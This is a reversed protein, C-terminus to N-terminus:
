PKELRYFETGSGSISITVTNSSGVVVVPASNSTWSGNLSAAQQVGFGTASTPWSLVISGASPPSVTLSVGPPGSQVPQFVFDSINQVSVSGGDGGGFGVYGLNAGLIPVVPGLNYNTSYTDSTSLDEMNVTLIGSAWNLNFQIPDGSELSINGTPGYLPGGTAFTIGNTEAAIGVFSYLDMELALSNTIDNFGLGGGGAGVSNTAAGCDQIIFTTGDAAPISFTHVTYVFSANFSGVYQAIPYFANASESGGGDTLELTDNTFFPVPSAAVSSDIVWGAGNTGLSNFTIPAVSALGTLSAVSSLVPVGASLANTLSVQILHVGSAANFTFSSSTAGSVPTGDMTWQFDIPLSGATTVTYTVSTGIVVEANTPMIDNQLAAAADNVTLPVSATLSGFANGAIVGITEGNEAVTAGTLTYTANTAGAVNNSLGANVVYWQYSSLPSGLTTAAALTVNRGVFVTPNAPTITLNIPALEAANYLAKIQAASMANTFIACQSINGAFLRGTGYDPAGGIWLDIANGPPEGASEGGQAVGDVYLHQNIGDYVGALMHWNGDNISFPCVVDPGSDAFHPIAATPVVDLRYSQDSHGFSTPFGTEGALPTLVWQMITMPGKINLDTKGAPIDVYASTGDFGVSVNSVLAAANPIGPQNLTFAGRYEGDHTGARDFAIVGSPEDLPWYAIPNLALINSGYQTETGFTTVITVTVPASTAKGVFNSLVCFLTANNTDVNSYTAAIAGPIPNTVNGSTVAYWQYDVPPASDGNTTVSFTTIDPHNTLVIFSATPTQSLISPALPTATTNITISATPSTASGSSSVATYEYTGADAAKLDSITLTTTDAGSIVSGNADTGNVLPVFVGNSQVLWTNTITGGGVVDVSLTASQSPFWEQTAPSPGALVFPGWAATAGSVAMIVSESNAAPALGYGVIINTVATTDVVAVFSEFLVPIVAASLTRSGINLAETAQFAIDPESSNTWDYIFLWNTENVGDQHQVVCTNSMTGLAINDGATLFALGTYAAPTVPTINASLHSSDILIADHNSYDGMQYTDSSTASTFTSGSPPLGDSPNNTDYGQEFWTNAPDVAINTGNDMTATVPFPVSAAVITEQQFGTVVSPNYVKGDPSTSVAFFNDVGGASGTYSLAVSTVPSSNTIKITQADLFPPGTNVTLAQFNAYGGNNIRGDCGWANFPQGPGSFWDPVAFSGTEPPGSSHNVTYNVTCGGNGGADLLAISEAAVPTELTLEGSLNIGRGSNSVIVLDDNTLYSPPMIFKMNTDSISTFVTGHIPVGSNYGYDGPARSYLGIEYYTTDGQSFGSGVWVSYENVPPLYNSSVVISQTFSGPTLPVPTFQGQVHTQAALLLGVAALSSKSLLHTKM